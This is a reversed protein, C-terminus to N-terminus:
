EMNLVEMNTQRGGGQDPSGSTIYIAGNHVVAQTGHRRFNMDDYSKWEVRVPDFAEVTSFAQGNGEGGIVFIKGDYALTAAGARPTPLDSENSLTAWSFSSLDFVDVQQIMPGFLGGFGGTQRGGIVYLRDDYVVAQFHDRAIPADPLEEWEGTQLSYRDTWPVYGGDHGCTNGGVVYIHEKYIVAGASGRTRNEPMSSVVEWRDSSTDYSLIEGQPIELPFQNDRFGGIFYIKGKHELAQAHNIDYPCPSGQIWSGNASDYIELVTPSERGGVIYIQGNSSVLSNEHRPIHDRDVSLLRWSSNPRNSGQQVVDDEKSDYVPLNNRQSVVEKLGTTDSLAIVEIGSLLPNQVMGTLAIHMNSSNAQVIAEKTIGLKFGSQNALDIENLDPPM